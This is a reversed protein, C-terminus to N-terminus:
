PTIGEAALARRLSALGLRIRSKITGEPAGLLRASERFTHGDLYAVAIAQRQPEPLRSLARRVGASAIATGAAAETDAATTPALQGDRDERRRRAAESRVADVARGHAQVALWGQLTGRDPDYRDPHGWLATFVRQTVDQALDHDRCVRRAISWVAGGHRRYIEELATENGDRLAAVLAADDLGDPDAM